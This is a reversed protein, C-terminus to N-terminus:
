IEDGGPDLLDVVTVKFITHPVLLEVSHILSDPTQM